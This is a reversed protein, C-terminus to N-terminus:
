AAFKLLKIAEFDQVGGGVRKTTYFLVYPKASFPDRLARIGIRDVVLYGRRFDGFAISLSNAAMNPMDEAEVVPFNLLTARGGALVPPAWLYNGTTDKFKRIASQTKRNMVFTANQRYASRLAHSFDIIADGPNSAPFAGAAGSNVTGLTGWSWSADASTPYTLLGKPSNVGDGSIFATSEAESFAYVIEEAIWSEVDVAADDLMAQTAAPQAFVEMTAFNIEAYQNASVSNNPTTTGAWGANAGNPYVAKKLASNALPRVSAISRIPSYAAMRALVEEEAALPLLYGADPAIAGNLAKAELSRIGESQGSRLYTTFAAKHETNEFQAAEAKTSLAPRQTRVLMQDLARNIREVKEESLTDASGKREIENLRTDNAEKFAEFTELMKTEPANQATALMEM